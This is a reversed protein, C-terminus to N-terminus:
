EAAVYDSIDGINAVILDDLDIMPLDIHNAVAKGITSKGCGRMGYLVIHKRM